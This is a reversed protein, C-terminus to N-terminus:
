TACLSWGCRRCAACGAVAVLSAGCEPCTVGLPDDADPAAPAVSARAARPEGFGLVQESRSRDRYITVGKCGLEFAMQYVRAVDAATAHQPLNVTKSVASHSHRQFAAQMRVHVEPSLDHATAFLAQADAPVEAVGRASGRATLTHELSQSWFGDRQARERFRPHLEPLVAGDLVHREYAVAFLPEIGSSCGAIISITGTPAVTTTTANRLPRDASASAAGAPEAGSWWRSTAYAPFAGRTAALDASAALSEREVFAAVAEGLAFAADADYPIGLDILLDAFGMVGLGIKRNARTIAAIQPLPYVTADIVNDLFHVGDRVAGRLREFDLETARDRRRVMRALNISGLVCSEFPLLPQEGCPNTAEIPGAAPTPNAENIRDHFLLGPDGTRWAVNAILEFVRRADLRRVEAGTRPNVLPYDDGRAVAAMFADTVAVSLNFNRMRAPDLKLTVFDLVDPHDVRLVGMNAGRRTGGQKIANTAVDFAEMFSVPGSAIGGTTDVRDGAPRLRSFSFGTGGGTKQIIAAWKVADFIADTSDEVPVVFCAALQGLPRGANMLTPSNPLFELAAMRQFLREETAAVSALSAGHGADVAAVARAVRRFMDVPQEAPAGAADRALYRRRLVEHANDTLPAPEFRTGCTAADPRSM